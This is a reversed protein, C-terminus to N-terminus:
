VALLAFLRFFLALLVFLLVVALTAVAGRGAAAFFCFFFLVFFSSFVRRTTVMVMMLVLRAGTVSAATTTAAPLSLTRDLLFSSHCAVTQDLTAFLLGAAPLVALVGVRLWLGLCLELDFLVLCADVFHLM